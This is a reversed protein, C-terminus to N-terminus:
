KSGGSALFQAAVDLNANLRREAKGPPIAWPKTFHKDPGLFVAAQKVYQTGTNGIALNYAAYRRAGELMEEPTHGETLRANAARRAGSWNQSGDGRDPYVLKLDLFWQQDTERPVSPASKRASRRGVLDQDLHPDQDQDPLPGGNRLRLQEANIRERHRQVRKANQANEKAITGNHRHFGPLKVHDADIIELWDRPLLQCFGQIGIVENIEDPGLPIVDDNGIHTDAIM